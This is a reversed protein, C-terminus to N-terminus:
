SSNPVQLKRVEEKFVQGRHEYNEFMDFSACAPALLVTDGPKSLNFAKQVAEAMSHCFTLPAAYKLAQAIKESASGILLIFKVRQKICDRMLTFDGGKDKGGLILVVNKEFAEIAKIASDINTAKSDNYYAVGNIETVFELRHEVGKFNRVARRMVDPDVHCIIGVALAAMVNEQNHEGRLPIDKLELLDTKTKNRYTIKGENVFIGHELPELTKNRSFFTIPCILSQAIKVSLPDDANLIAYENETFNKFLAMKSRAYDSFSKYRDLHDPTINLIAGIYPKFHKIGDLQFSSLETAYFDETTSTDVFGILPYGINGALYCRLGAAKLIEAVLTTTTTKGNSGTIGIIRGKLFHFALEVESIVEVGSEVAARLPEISLPVGPSVVVMDAHKFSEMNHGGLEFHIDTGKSLAFNKLEKVNEILKEEGQSDTAIVHAGRSLLFKATAVGTRALGVVVVKMNTLM